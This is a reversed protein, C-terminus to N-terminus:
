ARAAPFRDEALDDAVHKPVEVFNKVFGRQRLWVEVVVSDGDREFTVKGEDEVILRSIRSSDKLRYLFLAKRPWQADTPLIRPAWENAELLSGGDLAQVSKRRPPMGFTDYTLDTPVIMALGPVDGCNFLNVADARLLPKLTVVASEDEEFGGSKGL